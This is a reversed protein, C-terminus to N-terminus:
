QQDLLNQIEEPSIGTSQQVKSLVEPSITGQPVANGSRRAILENIQSETPVSAPDAALADLMESHDVNSSSAIQNANAVLDFTQARVTEPIQEQASISFQQESGEIESLLSEVSAIDEKSLAGKDASPLNKLEHTATDIISLSHALQLKADQAGNTTSSNQYDVLKLKAAYLATVPNLVLQGYLFFVSAILLLYLTFTSILPLILIKSRSMKKLYSLM